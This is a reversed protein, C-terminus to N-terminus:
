RLLIKWSFLFKLIAIEIIRIDKYSYYNLLLPSPYTREKVTEIDCEGGIVIATAATITVTLSLCDFIFVNEFRKLIM